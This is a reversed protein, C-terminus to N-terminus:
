IWVHRIHNFSFYKTFFCKGVYRYTRTQCLVWHGGQALQCRRHLYTHTTCVKVHDWPLPYHRTHLSTWRLDLQFPPCKDRWQLWLDHHIPNGSSDFSVHTVDDAASHALTYRKSFLNLYNISSATQEIENWYFRGSYANLPSDRNWYFKQRDLLYM